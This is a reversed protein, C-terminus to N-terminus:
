NLSYFFFLFFVGEPPGKHTDAWGQPQSASVIKLFDRNQSFRLVDQGHSQVLTCIDSCGNQVDARLQTKTEARLHPQIISDLM